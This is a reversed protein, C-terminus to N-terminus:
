SNIKSLKLLKLMVFLKVLATQKGWFHCFMTVIGHHEPDLLLSADSSAEERGEPVQLVCIQTHKVSLM